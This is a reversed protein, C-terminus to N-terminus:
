GSKESPKAQQCKWCIDFTAPNDEGCSACRWPKRSPNNAEEVWRDREQAEQIDQQYQPDEAAMQEFSKDATIQEDPGPLRLQSLLPVWRAYAAYGGAILVFMLLKGADKGVVSAYNAMVAIGGIVLALYLFLGVAYPRWKRVKLVAHCGPCAIGWERDDWLGRRRGFLRRLDAANVRQGCNPCEPPEIFSMCSEAPSGHNAHGAWKAGDAVVNM